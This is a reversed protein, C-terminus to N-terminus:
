KQDPYLVKAPDREPHAGRSGDVFAHEAFKEGIKAFMKVILPHNGLGTGVMLAALEPGGVERFARDKLEIIRQYDGKLEAQLQKASEEQTIKVLKQAEALDAAYKTVYAKFVENFAKPPIGNDFAIKAIEKIAADDYGVGKPLEVKEVKYDDFKEPVGIRKRFAAVEEPTAKEDPVVTSKGLKGELEVYSKGLDGLKQFKTLSANSKLDDPLQAMWAPKESDSAAGGTGSGKADVTKLEGTLLSGGEGPKGAAEAKDQAPAGAQEDAM